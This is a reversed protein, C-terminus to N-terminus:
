CSGLSQMGTVQPCIKYASGRGWYVLAGRGGLYAGSDIAAVKGYKIYTQIQLPSVLEGRAGTHGGRGTQGM